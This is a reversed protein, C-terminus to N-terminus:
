RNAEKMANIVKQRLMNSIKHQMYQNVTKWYRNWAQDADNYQTESGDACHITYVKAGGEHRLEYGDIKIHTKRQNFGEKSFESKMYEEVTRSYQFWVALPLRSEFLLKDNQCIFYTGDIPSYCFKIDGVSCRTKIYTSKEM